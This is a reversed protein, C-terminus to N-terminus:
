MCDGDRDKKMGMAKKPGKSVKGVMKTSGAVKKSMGKPKGGVKFPKGSKAM